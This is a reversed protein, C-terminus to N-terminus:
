CHRHLSLPYHAYLSVVKAKQAEAALEAEAWWQSLPRDFSFNGRRGCPLINGTAFYVFFGEALMQALFASLAFDTVLEPCNLTSNLNWWKGNVKRVTFWHAQRNLVFAKQDLPDRDRNEESMWSSLQVSKRALALTLVQISFNGGVGVNQSAEGDPSAEDLDGASLSRERKDLDGGIGALTVADFEPEQLLNNICHQGCLLAEQREHYVFSAM